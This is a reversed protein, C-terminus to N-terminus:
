APVTSVDLRMITEILKKRVTAQEKSGRRLTERIGDPAISLAYEVLARESTKLLKRASTYDACISEEAVSFEANLIEFVEEDEIAWIRTEERGKGQLFKLEKEAIASEIADVAAKAAIYNKQEQNM